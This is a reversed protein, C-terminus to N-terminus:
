EKLLRELDAELTGNYNDDLVKGERDLIVYRPIGDFHFLERLYNYDSEPIRYKYGEVDKMFADYAELPSSKEDTIFVFAVDSNKFKERVSKMGNIGARCPGCSTAWFDVFVIKGKYPDVIRRFIDTAKGEPLTYGRSHHTIKDMQKRIQSQIYPHTIQSAQILTDLEQASMRQFLFALDHYKMTQYVLDMDLGLVNRQISDKLKWGLLTREVETYRPLPDVYKRVYDQIEKGYREYIKEM